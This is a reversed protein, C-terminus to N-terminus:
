YKALHRLGPVTKRTDVIRAGTGEVLRVFSATRTAIGSLHQLFNLAMREGTLLARAPGAVAAIETGPALPAGDKLGPRLEVRPDVQRYVERVLALGALVGAAKAQFVASGAADAAVTALTTVDGPGVDEALAQEVIRATQLENVNTGM